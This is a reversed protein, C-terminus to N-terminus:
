VTLKKLSYYNGVGGVLANGIGVGLSMASPKQVSNVRAVYGSSSAAKESQISQLTNELNQSATTQREVEQARISDILGTVSLGSIGNASANNEATAIATNAERQMALKDSAAADQEGMQQKQLATQEAVFADNASQKNAEYAANQASYQMVSSAVGLGTSIAAITIPECM